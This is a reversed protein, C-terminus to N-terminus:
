SCNFTKSSRTLWWCAQETSTSLRRWLDKNMFDLWSSLYISLYISWYFVPISLCVYISLYISLYINTHMYIYIYTYIYIYVKHMEKVSAYSVCAYYKTLFRNSIINAYFYMSFWSSLFFPITLPWSNICAKIVSYLSTYHIHM